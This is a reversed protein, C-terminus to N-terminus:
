ECADAGVITPDQRTTGDLDIAVDPHLAVEPAAACDLLHLDGVDPDSFWGMEAELVNGVEDATAGDRARIDMNTLNGHLVVGSTEPFRYELGYLYADPHTYVVTNHAVLIDNGREISIGVDHERAGPFSSTVMNNVVRTGYVPDVFGIGIGRACDVIVNRAVDHASGQESDWMHVAHESLGGVYTMGDRQEPFRGHAPRQVGDADCYIGEFRNDHVSWDRANHTDIGGTYCTTNGNQPGYGWVNDRGEDSMTFVSCAVEVDDVAGDNVSAKLFQQGGDELRVDYLVAADGDTWVHVLHYISRRVTLHALAVGPAAITVNSAGNGMSRYAGDLIVASADGSRGRVTIDQTTVYVGTFAGDAADPLTYTGDELLVTDGPQAMSVAARLTMMQGDVTVMGDDAPAVIIEAGDRQPLVFDACVSPPEVTGGTDDDTTSSGDDDSPGSTTPLGTEGSATTSPNSTTSPNATSAAGSTMGPADTDTGAAAGGDDDGCGFAWLLGLAGMWVRKGM